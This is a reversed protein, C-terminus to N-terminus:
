KYMCHWLWLRCVFCWICLCCMSLWTQVSFTFYNWYFRTQLSIVNCLITYVICYSYWPLSISDHWNFSLIVNQVLCIYLNRFEWFERCSTIQEYLMVKATYESHQLQRVGCCALVILERLEWYRLFIGLIIDSLLSCHIQRACRCSNIM